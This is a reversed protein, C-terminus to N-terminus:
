GGITHCPQCAMSVMKWVNKHLGFRDFIETFFNFVRQLRPVQMSALLGDDPYFYAEMRQIDWWFM